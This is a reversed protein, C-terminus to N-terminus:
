RKLKKRERAPIVLDTANPVFLYEQCRTEISQNIDDPVVPTVTELEDLEQRLHDILSETITAQRPTALIQELERIIGKYRVGSLRHKETKEEYRHFTIEYAGDLNIIAEGLLEEARFDIDYANVTVGTIPRNNSALLIKGKVIFQNELADVAANIERATESDVTGDAPLGHAQQFAIVADRTAQLFINDSLEASAITYGLQRLESHLLKVDEGQLRLSLNRGQLQM